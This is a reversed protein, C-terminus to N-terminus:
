GPRWGLPDRDRDRREDIALPELARLGSVNAILLETRAIQVLLVPQEPAQHAAAPATELTVAHGVLVARLPRRDVVVAASRRAQGPARGATRVMHPRVREIRPDPLLDALVEKVGFEQHACLSLHSLRRRQIRREERALDLVGLLAHRADAVFAAPQEIRILAPEEVRLFKRIAGLRDRSPELRELVLKLRKPLLVLVRARAALQHLTDLVERRDEGLPEVGHTKRFSLRQDARDELFDDEASIGHLEVEFDWEGGRLWRRTM